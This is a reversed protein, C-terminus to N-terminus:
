KGRLDANLQNSKNADDFARQLDTFCACFGEDIDLTQKSIIRLMGVVHSAIPQISQPEFEPTPSVTALLGSQFGLGM